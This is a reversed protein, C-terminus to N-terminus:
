WTLAVKYNYQEPSIKNETKQKKKGTTYCYTLLSKLVRVQPPPLALHHGTLSPELFHSPEVDTFRHVSPPHVPQVSQLETFHSETLNEFDGPHVHHTSYEWTHDLCFLGSKPYAFAILVNLPM